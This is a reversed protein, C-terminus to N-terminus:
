ARPRHPRIAELFPAELEAKVKEKFIEFLESGISPKIFTLEAEELYPQWADLTNSVNISSAARVQSIDTILSM